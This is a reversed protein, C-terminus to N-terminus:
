YSETTELITVNNSMSVYEKFEDNKTIVIYNSYNQLLDDFEKVVGFSVTDNFEIVIRPLTKSQNKVKNLSEEIEQTTISPTLKNSKILNNFEDDSLKSLFYLTTFVPPLLESVQKLKLYSKGIQEWKRITSSGEVYHTQKLFEKYDQTTFNNKIENFINGIELLNEVSNKSLNNVKSSMETVSYIM